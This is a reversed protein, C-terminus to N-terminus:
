NAQAAPYYSEHEADAGGGRGGGAVAAGSEPGAMGESACGEAEHGLAEAFPEAYVVVEEESDGQLQNEPKDRVEDDAGDYDREQPNKRPGM